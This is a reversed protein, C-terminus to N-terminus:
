KSASTAAVRAASTCHSCLTWKVVMEVTPVVRPLLVHLFGTQQTFNM